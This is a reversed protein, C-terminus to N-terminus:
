ICIRFSLDPMVHYPWGVERYTKRHNYIVINFAPGFGATLRIKKFPAFSREASPILSIVRWIYYGDELGWYVLSNNLHWKYCGNELKLNRKLATNFSLTFAYNERDKKLFNEYGASLSLSHIDSKFHYELGANLTEYYGYGAFVDLHQLFQASASTRFAFSFMLILFYIRAQYM